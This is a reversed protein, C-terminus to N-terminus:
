LPWLLPLFTAFSSANRALGEASKSSFQTFSEKARPPREIVQLMLAYPARYAAPRQWSQAEQM